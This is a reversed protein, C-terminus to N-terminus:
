FFHLMGPITLNTDLHKQRDTELYKLGNIDLYKQGDTDLYKQGNTDLYKQRGTDLNKQGNRNLYKQGNADLYKYGDTDLYNQGDTGMYHQHIREGPYGIPGPGSSSLFHLIYFSIDTLFQNINILSLTPTDGPGWTGAFMTLHRWDSTMTAM